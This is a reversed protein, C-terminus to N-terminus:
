NILSAEGMYQFEEVVAINCFVVGTVFFFSESMIVIASRLALLFTFHVLNNFYKWDITFNPNM